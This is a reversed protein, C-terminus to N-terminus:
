RHLRFLLGVSLRLDNQRNDAGNGFTTLLYETQIPMLTWRASLPYQVGVGTQFAFTTSGGYGTNAPSLTGGAHAGGILVDGFPRIRSHNILPFYRVGGAFITQTLDYQNVTVGGHHTATVDGLLSLHSSLRFQVQGSGGNTSFCDCGPLLNTRVYTYTAGVDLPHSQANATSTCIVSLAAFGFALASLFSIYRNM